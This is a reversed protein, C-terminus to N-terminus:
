SVMVFVPYFIEPEFRFAGDGEKWYFLLVECAVVDCFLDIM